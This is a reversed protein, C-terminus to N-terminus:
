FGNADLLADLEAVHREDLTWGQGGLNERVQAPKRAGVLATTVGPQCLTWNIAVQGLTRGYERAIPEMGALVRQAREWGEGSFRKDNRRVDSEPFEPPDGRFRGTLLGRALPGYALFGMGLRRAAPLDEKLVGRELMSLPSQLSVVPMLRAAAEMQDPHFNSVGAFRIKGQEQLTSLAEMSEEIPTDKVPWHLQYLDIVETKLRRLSEECGELIHKRSLDMKWGVESNGLVGVKTALFVEDRRGEIAQGVIEESHGEGYTDATDIFTIGADLAVRITTISDEDDTPGWQTGGIAWTGLAITDVRPGDVGLQRQDIAAPEAFQMTQPNM